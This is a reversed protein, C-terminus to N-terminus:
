VLTGSSIPDPPTSIAKLVGAWVCVVGFADAIFYFQSSSVAKRM